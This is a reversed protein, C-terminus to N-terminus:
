RSFRYVWHSYMQNKWITGVKTHYLYKVGHYEANIYAMWLIPSLFIPTGVLTNSMNFIAQFKETEFVKSVGFDAIKVDIPDQQSILVNEPKIDRHFLKKERALFEFTSICQEMVRLM